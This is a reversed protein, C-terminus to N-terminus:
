EEYCDDGDKWGPVNVCPGIVLEDWDPENLSDDEVPKAVGDFNALPNDLFIKM